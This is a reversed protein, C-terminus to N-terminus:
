TGVNSVAIGAILDLYKKGATDYLYVGEAKEIELMLPAASTQAVHRLFLQRNTLM